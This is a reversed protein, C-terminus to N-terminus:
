FSYVIGNILQFDHKKLDLFPKNDYRFNSSIYFSLKRILEIEVRGEFLIRYDNFNSIDAQYYGIINLNLRENLLMNLSIYNTSRTLYTNAEIHENSDDIEKDFNEHEYMLGIGLNINFKSTFSESEHEFFQSIRLGGGLLNRDKLFIFKDFQKQFFLEGAFSDNFSKITRLHTFGKSLYVGDDKQGYDANTLLFANFSGKLYDLRFGGKLLTFETNGSYYSYSFNLRGEFGEKEKDKRYIETNVQAFLINIGICIFLLLFILTKIAKM